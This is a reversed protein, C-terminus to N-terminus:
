AKMRWGGKERADFYRVGMVCMTAGFLLALDFYVVNVYNERLGPGLIAGGAPSGFFSGIGRIFYIFGNVSAYAQIGFVESITTPFLANYGGAFIGYLVVFYIWITQDGSIASKLWLGSVAIASGLTTVVLVNQRGLRDGAYGTSIRSLSSVGNNIALLNAGYADTNGLAITFKPLFSLPILNGSAQLLAAGISLLFVPRLVLKIDIHTPRQSSFRSPPATIAIPLSILLIIFALARLTWRLGIVDLLQRTVLTFIVAGVGSGSLVFGMALGRRGNFYEPCVSLIPFYMLSSGIGYLLGQTLLLHWVQGVIM